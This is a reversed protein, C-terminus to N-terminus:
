KEGGKLEEEMIKALTRLYNLLSEKPSTNFCELLRIYEESHIAEYLAYFGLRCHTLYHALYKFSTSPMQELKRTEYKLKRIIKKTIKKFWCNFAESGIGKGRLLMTIYKKCIKSIEVANKLFITDNNHFYFLDCGRLATVYDWFYVPFTGYDMYYAQNSLLEKCVEVWSFDGLRRM